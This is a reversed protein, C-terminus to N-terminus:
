AKAYKNVYGEVLQTLKRHSSDIYQDIKAKSKPIRHSKMTASVKDVTKKVITKFAEKSMNGQRWSPKLVEKVFNALEAQFLKMSRSDKSKKSEVKRKGQDIEIGGATTEAQDNPNCPSGNEVVVAADATEDYYKNELSVAAAEDEENKEEVDQKGALTKSLESSPEISDFLPDYQHEGSKPLAQGVTRSSNPSSNMQRMGLTGANQGERSVNGLSFPSDYKSGYATERELRYASSSFKSSLPQDFTSAYPNYHASIKSGGIDPFRPPHNRDLLDSPFRSSSLSGGVHSSIRDASTQQAGYLPHHPQLHLHNPFTSQSLEGPPLHLLNESDLSGSTVLGQSPLHAYQNETMGIPSGFPQSVVGGALLPKSRFDEVHLPPQKPDQISPYTQHQLGVLQSHSPLENLNTRLSTQMPFDNRMPLNSQQFLLPAGSITPDAIYPPRAQPLPAASWSPNQPVPYPFHQNLLPSHYSPVSEMPVSQVPFNSVTSAIKSHNRLSQPADPANAGQLSPHPSLHSIHHSLDASAVSPLPYKENDPLHSTPEEPVEYVVPTGSSNTERSIECKVGDTIVAKGDPHKVYEAKIEEVATANESGFSSGDCRGQSPLKNSSKVEDHRLPKRSLVDKHEAAVDSNRSSQPIDLHLQKTRPHRAGDYKDSGHHLYRCSAGRYCRGKLFDLCEQLQARGRRLRDTGFDGPRKLPSKSRSRRRKPSWSRSRSRKEKRGGRNRRRKDPPSQSYSRSRGRKGRRGIYDSDDSESESVGERVLRGFEDVKLASTNKAVDKQDKFSGSFTDFDASGLADKEHFTEFSASQTSADTKNEEALEDVKESTTGEVVIEQADNHLAPPNNGPEESLMGQTSATLIESLELKAASSSKSETFDQAMDGLSCSARALKLASTPRLEELHPEDDDESSDDSAYKQILRFPSDSVIKGASKDSKTGTKADSDALLSFNIEPSDHSVGQLVNDQELIEVEDRTSVLDLKNGEALNYFGRDQNSKTADDEMDMDSDAPSYTGGVAMLTNLEGSSQDRVLNPLLTSKALGEQLNSALGCNKKMWQYYEHAIAAESGKEGGFLFNFKPNGAEKQCAMHEFELGNKAIFQCLIEINRVIQEDTPKPPPPPPPPPPPLDLHVTQRLLLGDEVSLGKLCRGGKHKSDDDQMVVDINGTSESSPPQNSNPDAASHLPQDTAANLPASTLIGFSSPPSSSPPPPPPSPPYSPPLPPPPPPALSLMQSEVFMPQSVSEFPAASLLSSSTPPPSPPLMQQIGQQTGISLQHVPHRYLTQVQSPPTPLVRSPGLSPLPAPRLSYQVNQTGFHPPYLSNQQSVPYADTMPISGHVATPPHLFSQGINSMVGPQAHHPIPPPVHPVRPFAPAGAPVAYPPGPQQIIPPPPPPPGQHFHSSPPHGVPPQQLLPMPRHPGQGSQSVYNGQGYM